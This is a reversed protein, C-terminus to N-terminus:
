ALRGQASKMLGNIMKHLDSTQLLIGNLTEEGIYELDFAIYAHSEVETLSGLAMSYFNAKEKATNRSFGEAINAAVSVGSRRMQSSLGFQETKPFNGTLKYVNVALERAMQWTRLQTFSHIKEM